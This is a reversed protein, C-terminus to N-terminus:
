ILATCSVEMGNSVFEALKNWTFQATSFEQSTSNIYLRNHKVLTYISSLFQASIIIFAHKATEAGNWNENSATQYCWCAVAVLLVSWLKSIQSEMPRAEVQWQQFHWQLTQVQPPWLHPLRWWQWQRSCICSCKLSALGHGNSADLTWHIGQGGLYHKM